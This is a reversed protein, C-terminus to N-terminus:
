EFMIKVYNGDGINRGNLKVSRLIKGSGDFIEMKLDQKNALSPNKISVGIGSLNDRLSIFSQLLRKEGYIKETGELSPQTDNPIIKILFSLSIPIIILITCIFLTTFVILKKM